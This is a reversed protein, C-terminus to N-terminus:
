GCVLVGVVDEVEKEDVEHRQEDDDDGVREDEGSHAGGEPGDTM